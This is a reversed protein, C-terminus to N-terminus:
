QLNLMANRYKLYKDYCEMYQAHLKANPEFTLGAKTQLSNEIKLAQLGLIVAGRASDDEAGNAQVPMNFIDSLMQVWFASRTFGGSARIFQPSRNQLLLHGYDYVALLIGELVARLIHSQTHEISLGYFMGRAHANWLPSREGLIYPVFVLGNAGPSVAAAKELLPDYNEGAAFISEMVWQLAVAGNNGAGGLLYQNHNFHYCFLCQDKDLEFDQVILRAASSTGVTVALINADIAGSGLNALAGDSAGMVWQTNHIGFIGKLEEYQLSAEIIYGPAKIDPLQAESISLYELIDHDWQLSKTHLLGTASAISTDTMYKGFLRFLLYEKIGIFCSAKKFLDKDERRLWAIKTMPSMAHVPVGTKEYFRQGLDSGRLEEAISDARQDAWIICNSAAKGSEDMVILSHMAASFAIMAPAEGLAEATDKITRIAAEFIEQPDQEAWGKQPHQMAYSVAASHLQKGEASYAMAKLSSTGIDIGLYYTMLNNM